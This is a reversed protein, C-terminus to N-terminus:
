RETEAQRDILTNVVAAAQAAGDVTFVLDAADFRQLRLSEGSATIFGWSGDFGGRFGVGGYDGLASIEVVRAAKIQSLETRRLTRGFARVSVGASDVVVTAQQVPIMVAAILVALLLMLWWPGAILWLWVALALMLAVSGSLVVSTVAGHRMQGTWAVRASEAVHARVAGDPAAPRPYPAVGPKTRVVLAHAVGVVVGAVMGGALALNSMTVTRADTVGQQALVSGYMLIGMFVATGSAVAAISPHRTPLTLALTLLSLGAILAANSGVVSGLTAFGDATGAPGWHTAIPDPLRGKAALVLATGVGVTVAAVAAAIAPSVWRATRLDM